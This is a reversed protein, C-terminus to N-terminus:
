EDDELEGNEKLLKTLDRSMNNKNIISKPVFYKKPQQPLTKFDWAEAGDYESREMWWDDGVVKLDLPVYTAGFGGDYDVDAIKAFDKWNFWLDENGIWKVDEITKGNRELEDITEKLLNDLGMM